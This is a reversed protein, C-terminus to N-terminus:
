LPRHTLAYTLRQQALTARRPRYAIPMYRVRDPLRRNFQGAVRGLQRLAQEDLATWSLGLKERAAPPLTGVTLLQNLKGGTAAIPSWMWGLASPFGPLPPSDTATALVQHATPHDELVDDIMHDFYDWYADPDPPLM